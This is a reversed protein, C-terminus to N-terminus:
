YKEDAKYPNTDILESSFLENKESYGNVKFKNGSIDSSNLYWLKIDGNTIIQPTFYVDRDIEQIKIITIKKNTIDGFFLPLPVNTRRPFFQTHINGSHEGGNILEWGFIKRKLFSCAYSYGPSGGM